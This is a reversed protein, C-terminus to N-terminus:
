KQNKKQTKKIISWYVTQWVRLLIFARCALLNTWHSKGPIVQNKTYMWNSTNITSWSADESRTSPLIPTTENLLCIWITVIRWSHKWRLPNITSTPGDFRIFTPGIAMKVGNAYVLRCRQVLQNFIITCWMSIKFHRFSPIIPCCVSQFHKFFCSFFFVFYSLIGFIHVSNNIHWLGM